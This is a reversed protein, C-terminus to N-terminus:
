AGAEYEHKHESWWKRANIVADQFFSETLGHQGQYKPLQQDPVFIKQGERASLVEVFQGIHLALFYGGGSRGDDIQELLQYCHRLYKKRNAATLTGANSTPTCLRFSESQAVPTGEASSLEIASALYKNPDGHDFLIKVLSRRFDNPQKADAALVELRSLISDIPPISPDSLSRGFHLRVSLESVALERGSGIASDDIIDLMLPILEGRTQGKKGIHHQWLQDLTCGIRDGEILQLESWPQRTSPGIGTLVPHTAILRALKPAIARFESTTLRVYAEGRSKAAVTTDVIQDLDDARIGHFAIVLALIIAARMHNSRSVLPRSGVQQIQGLAKM